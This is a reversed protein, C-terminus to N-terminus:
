MERNIINVVHINSIIYNFIFFYLCNTLFYVISLVYYRDYFYVMLLLKILSYLIFFALFIINTHKQVDLIVKSLMLEIFRISIIVSMSTIGIPLINLVDYILCFVFVSFYSINNSIFFSYFIIFFPVNPIISQSIGNLVLNNYLVTAFIFIFVFLVFKLFYILGNTM